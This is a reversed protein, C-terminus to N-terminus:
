ITPPSASWAFAPGSGSLGTVADLHKEDLFKVRGLASFVWLAFAKEEIGTNSPCSLVTM